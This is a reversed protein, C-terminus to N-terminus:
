WLLLLTFAMVVYVAMARLDSGAGSNSTVISPPCPPGLSEQTHISSLADTDNFGIIFFAVHHCPTDPDAHDPLLTIRWSTVNLIISVAERFASRDFSTMRQLHLWTIPVDPLILSSVEVSDSTVKLSRGIVSFDGTLPLNPDTVLVKDGPIVSGHKGKLDGVRCLLPALSSCLDATRPRSYIWCFLRTVLREMRICCRVRDSPPLVPNIDDM